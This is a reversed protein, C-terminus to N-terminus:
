VENVVSVDSTGPVMAVAAAEVMALTATDLTAMNMEMTGGVTAAM